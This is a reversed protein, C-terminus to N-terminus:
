QAILTQLIGYQELSDLISQIGSTPVAAVFEIVGTVFYDRVSNVLTSLSQDSLTFINFDTAVDGILYDLPAERPVRKVTGECTFVPAEGASEAPYIGIKLDGEKKSEGAMRLRFNPLLIGECEATGTFAADSNIEEPLGEATLKLKVLTDPLRSETEEEPEYAEGDEEESEYDGEEWGTNPMSPREWAAELSCRIGKETKERLIRFSPVYYGGCPPPTLFCEYGNEYKREGFIVDGDENTCRIWEGEWAVTLGGDGTVMGLLDPIVTMESELTEYEGIKPQCVAAFWDTIVTNTQFAERWREAIRELTERDATRSGGQEPMGAEEKWIAALERIPALTSDPYLLMVPTLPIMFTFWSRYAFAMFGEPMFSISNEEPGLLSSSVRWWWPLFRMQLSVAAKPNAEPILELHMDSSRTGPCTAFNGRFALSDLLEAFGQMRHREALPFAGPDLGLKLDYDYAFVEPEEAAACSFVLLLALLAAALRKM